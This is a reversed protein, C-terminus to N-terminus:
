GMHATEALVGRRRRRQASRGCGRARRGSLSGARPATNKLKKLCLGFAASGQAAGCADFAFRRRATCTNINIMEDWAFAAFRM